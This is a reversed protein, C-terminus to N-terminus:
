RVVPLKRGEVDDHGAFHSGGVLDDLEDDAGALRRGRRRDAGGEAAFADLAYIEALYIVWKEISAIRKGM